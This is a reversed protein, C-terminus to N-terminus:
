LKTYFSSYHVIKKGQISNQEDNRPAQSSAIEPQTAPVTKVIESLPKMPLPTLRPAEKAESAKSAQAVKAAGSDGGPTEIRAVVPAPTSYYKKQTIPIKISFTPRAPQQQAIPKIEEKEAHLIFPGSPSEHAEKAELAKTAKSAGWSAEIHRETEVPMQKPSLPKKEPEPAPRLKNLDLSPLTEKGFHLLSVDIGENLLSEEITHFIKEDIEKLIIKASTDSINLKLALESMADRPELDKITIRLIINPIIFIREGKLNLRTNLDIIVLDTKESGIQNIINKPLTQITSRIAEIEM